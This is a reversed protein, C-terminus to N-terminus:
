PLSCLGARGPSSHHSMVVAAKQVFFWPLSCHGTGVLSLCRIRVVHVHAHMCSCECEHTAAKHKASTSESVGVRGPRLSNTTMPLEGFYIRGGDMDRGAEINGRVGFAQKHQGSIRAGCEYEVRAASLQRMM